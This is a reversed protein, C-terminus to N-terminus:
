INSSSSGFAAKLAQRAASLSTAFAADAAKFAAKRVQALQVVQTGIKSDDKRDTQFTTRATKLSDILTSRITAGNAPNAICSAEATAIASNASDVFANLQDTVESHRTAIASDVGSRFATRAADYATRRTAVANNVATIYAQVAAKQSDTTAKAELKTYNDQRQTDWTQRDTAIEQDEKQRNTTLTQSAKSWADDVKNKMNTLNTTIQSARNQLNNCFPSTTAAMVPLSSAFVTVFVLSLASFLGTKSLRNM